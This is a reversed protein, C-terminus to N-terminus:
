QNDGPLSGITPIQAYYTDDTWKQPNARIYQSIREHEDANRIVHDHYRAQWAFPMQNQRAYKTVGTKYGRV